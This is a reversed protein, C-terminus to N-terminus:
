PTTQLGQILAGHEIKEPRDLLTQKGVSEDAKMKQEQGATTAM